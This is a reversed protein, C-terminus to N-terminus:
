ADCAFSCVLILSAYLAAEDPNNPTHLTSLTRAKIDTEGRAKTFLVTLSDGINASTIGHAGFSALNVTSGGEHWFPNQDLSTAKAMSGFIRRMEDDQIPACLSWAAFADQQEIRNGHARYAYLPAPPAAPSVSTSAAQIQLIHAPPYHWVM